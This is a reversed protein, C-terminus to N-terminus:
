AKAESESEVVILSEAADKACGQYDHLNEPRDKFLRAMRNEYEIRDMRQFFTEKAAM